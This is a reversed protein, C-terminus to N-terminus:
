INKFGNIVSFYLQRLAHKPFVTMTFCFRKLYFNLSFVKEILLGRNAKRIFGTERGLDGDVLIHKTVRFANKRYKSEYFPFEDRPLGVIDVCVCGFIKWPKMLNMDILTTRLYERDIYSSRAHLFMTLDCVQRLGAGVSIFHTWLHNFIYFANFNDSTTLVQTEGLQVPVLDQTLGKSAHCQYIRDFKLSPLVESFKHVEISIGSLKAHYHKGAGNLVSPDDIKDVFEKLVDYSKHYNELGVYFDIDGCERLDPYTYNEAIGQGKLLVCEIGAKRLTMVIHQIASNAMSHMVVNTMLMNNLEAQKKSSIHSLVEPCDLIGKTVSGQTAQTEALRMVLSWDKFDAPVEVKTDWLSNRILSIYVKEYEKM